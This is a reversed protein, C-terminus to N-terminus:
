RGAADSWVTGHLRAQRPSNVPQNYYGAADTQYLFVKVNPVPKGQKDYVAGRMVLRIGPEARGM